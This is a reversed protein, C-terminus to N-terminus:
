IFDEINLLNSLNDKETDNKRSRLYTVGGKEETSVAAGQEWDGVSYDWVMTYLPKLKAAQDKTYSKAPVRFQNNVDIEVISVHSIYHPHKETGSFTVAIIGYFSTTAM